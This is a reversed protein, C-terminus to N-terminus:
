VLIQGADIEDEVGTVDSRRVDEVAQFLEGGYLRNKTVDVPRRDTRTRELMQVDFEVTQAKPHRVDAAPGTRPIPPYAALQSGMWGVYEDAAMTMDQPDLTHGIEVIHQVNVGACGASLTKMGHLRTNAQFELVARRLLGLHDM